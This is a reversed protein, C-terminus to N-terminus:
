HCCHALMLVKLAELSPYSLKLFLEFLKTLLLILRAVIPIVLGFKEIAKGRSV